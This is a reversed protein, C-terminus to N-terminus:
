ADERKYEDLGIFRCIRGGKEQMYNWYHDISAYKIVDGRRPAHVITNEDVIMVVHGAGNVRYVMCDGPKIQSKDWPITQGANIFDATTGIREYGMDYLMESCFGSCDYGKQNPGSGGWVYPLGIYKEAYNKITQTDAGGALSGMSSGGESSGGTGALDNSFIGESVDLLTVNGSEDISMARKILNLTTTFEGLDINHQVELIQYFGSSHHFLKDKTMVILLVFSQTDILANGRLVLQATPQLAAAMTFMYEAVRALDTPSYSSSGVWRKFETDSSYPTILVNSLEDLSPAHLGIKNMIDSNSSTNSNTSTTYSSSDTTTSGVDYEYDNETVNDRLNSPFISVDVKRIYGSMGLQHKGYYWAPTESEILFWTDGSITGVQTCTKSNTGEYIHAKDNKAYVKLGKMPSDYDNMLDNHSGDGEVLNDIPMIRANENSDSSTDQTASTDTSDSDNEITSSDQYNDSADGQGVVYQLLGKYEPKFSIINEHEKGITFEYIEYQDVSAQKIPEFYLYMQGDADKTYCVYGSEGNVSVAKPVLDQKVFSLLDKGPNTYPTEPPEDSTEVINGVQYGLEACIQEVVESIKGEYEKAADNNESQLGPGNLCTLTLMVGGAEFDIDYDVIHCVRMGNEKSALSTEDMGFDYYVTSFGKKIEYELLLATDDYLTFVIDNYTELASETMSFSIVNQAQRPTKPPTIITDGIQLFIIPSNPNVKVMNAM